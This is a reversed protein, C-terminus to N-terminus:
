EKYYNIQTNLVHEKQLLARYKDQLAGIQQRGTEMAKVRAREEAYGVLRSMARFLRPLGRRHLLEYDTLGETAKVYEESLVSWATELEDFDQPDEPLSKLLKDLVDNCFEERTEDNQAVVAAKRAKIDDVLKTQFEDVM